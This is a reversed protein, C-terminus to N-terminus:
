PLAYIKIGDGLDEVVINNGERLLRYVIWMDGVAGSANTVMGLLIGTVGTVPVIAVLAMGLLSLIVLPALAVILYQGRPFFWGPAAAFAYGGGIGFRPRSHSFIWFFAGHILEHLGIFVVFILAVLFVDWVRIAIRRSFLQLWDPRVYITWWVFLVGFIGFGAISLIQLSWFARRNELLNLSYTLTANEPRINTARM